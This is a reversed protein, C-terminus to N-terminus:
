SFPVTVTVFTLTATWFLSFTNFLPVSENSGYLERVAHLDTRM